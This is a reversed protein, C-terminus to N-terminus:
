GPDVCAEFRESFRDEETGQIKSRAVPLFFDCFIIADLRGEDYTGSLVTEGNKAHAQGVCNWRSMSIIM